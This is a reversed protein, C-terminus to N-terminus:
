IAMANRFLTREIIELQRKFGSYEGLVSCHLVCSHTLTLTSLVREVVAKETALRLCAFRHSNEALALSWLFNHDMWSRSM